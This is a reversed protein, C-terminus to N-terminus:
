SRVFVSFDPRSLFSVVADLDWTRCRYSFGRGLMSFDLRSTSWHELVSFDHRSTCFRSVSVLNVWWLRCMTSLGYKSFTKEFTCFFIFRGSSSWIRSRLTLTNIHLNNLDAVIFAVIWRMDPQIMFCIHGSTLVGVEILELCWEINRQLQNPFLFVLDFLNRRDFPMNSWPHSRNQKMISYELQRFCSKMSQRPFICGCGSTTSLHFSCRAYKWFVFSHLYHNPISPSGNSNSHFIKGPCVVTSTRLCIVVFIAILPILGSSNSSLIMKMDISLSM